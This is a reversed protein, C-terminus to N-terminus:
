HRDSDAKMQAFMRCVCSSCHACMSCVGGTAQLQKMAIQNQLRCDLMCQPLAPAALATAFAIVAEAMDAVILCLPAVCFVDYKLCHLAIGQCSM